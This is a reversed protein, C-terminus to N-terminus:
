QDAGRNLRAILGLGATGLERAQAASLMYGSDFEIPSADSPTEIIGGRARPRRDGELEISGALPDVHKVTAPHLEGDIAVAVTDGERLDVDCQYPNM